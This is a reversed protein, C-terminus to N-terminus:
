LSNLNNTQNKAIRNQHRTKVAKRHALESKYLGRALKSAAYYDGALVRLRKREKSYPLARAAQAKYTISMTRLAAHLPASKLMPNIARVLERYHESSITSKM